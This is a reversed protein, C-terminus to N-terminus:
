KSAAATPQSNSFIVTTVIFFFFIIVIIIILMSASPTQTDLRYRYLVTTYLTICFEVGEASVTAIYRRRRRSGSFFFRLSCVYYIYM